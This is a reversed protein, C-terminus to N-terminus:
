SRMLQQLTVPGVGPTIRIRPLQFRDSWTEVNQFLTVTAPASTAGAKPAPAATKVTRAGELFAVQLDQCAAVAAITKTGKRGFPYALSVPWRGTVQAIRAAAVDIQYKLSSPSQSPLSKHDVTHDGIEEGAAVLAQLQVSSLFSPRDIRAAIVYYTAVFGYKQLIPLAYTYGDSWGDDITIVFTKAPPRVRTAMDAALTATNITHWGAAALAAMQKDFTTPPVALSSNSGSAKAIASPVIRHYMLVPVHLIWPNTSALVPTPTAVSGSVSTPDCSNVV